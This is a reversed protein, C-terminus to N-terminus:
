ETIAPLTAIQVGDAVLVGGALTDAHADEAPPEPLHQLQVTGDAARTVLVRETLPMKIALDV